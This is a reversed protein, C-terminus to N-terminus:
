ARSRFLEKRLLVPLCIAYLIGAIYPQSMVGSSMMANPVFLLMTVLAGCALKDTPNRFVETALRWLAVGVLLCFSLLLPVGGMILLEIVGNHAMPYKIQCTRINESDTCVMDLFGLTGSGGVLGVGTLLSTPGYQHILKAPLATLRDITGSAIDVDDGIPRPAEAEASVAHDGIPGPAEAEASVAHDGIPGPAEAEASVAHDGIPGPAEAEPSAAHDGIPGPAEAEPSVAHDGIPGPAEAEPSAAHDEIPGPAEAEASVAHDRIARPAEAEASVAMSSIVHFLAPFAVALAPAYRKPEVDFSVVSERTGFLTNSANLPGGKPEMVALPVSLLLFAAAAMACVTIPPMIRQRRLAGFVALAAMALVFLFINATAAKQLSVVLGMAIIGLIVGGLISRRFMFYAVPLVLGGVVGTATLNGILSAYRISGSRETPLAFWDMPGFATQYFVTWAGIVVWVTFTQLALRQKERTDLVLAAFAAFPLIFVFRATAMFYPEEPFFVFSIAIAYTIALLLAASVFLGM